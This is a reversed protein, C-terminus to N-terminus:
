KVDVEGQGNIVAYTRAQRKKLQELCHLRCMLDPSYEAASITANSIWDAGNGFKHVMYREDHVATIGADTLRTWIWYDEDFVDPLPNDLVIRMAKRSLWRAAGTIHRDRFKLGVYDHQEFGSRFLREPWVYVDDDCKFLYDYGHDYTWQIIAQMKRCLHGYDDPVDLNVDRADARVPGRGFFFRCDALGEAWTSKQAAM